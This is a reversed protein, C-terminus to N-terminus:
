ILAVGADVYILNVEAVDHLALHLEAAPQMALSKDILYHLREFRKSYCFVNFPMCFNM